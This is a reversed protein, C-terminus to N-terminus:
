RRPLAKVNLVMSQMSGRAVDILTGTRRCGDLGAPDYVDCDPGDLWATLIYRGPRIGGIRFRGYEDAYAERYDQLRDGAPEPILTVAAGSWMSGDPGVVQGDIKAGQSELVIQFPQSTAMSTSLGTARVDAGSARVETLYFDEPLNMVFADYTEKPMLLVDFPEDSTPAVDVISGRESRPELVVHPRFGPPLRQAGSAVVEGQWARAPLVVVELEEVNANSLLLTQRGQLRRNELTSEVWLQYWGPAVNAIHFRNEADFQVEAFAPLTGTNGSDLRELFVSATRIAVGSEGDTIRGGIRVREVPRMYVDIGNLEEGSSLRLPLAESLRQTGPYFTTTYSPVRVERGSDDVRPQDEVGPGTIDGELAVAVYYAGPALGHIRYEGHDNTRASGANKFSHRGRAHYQQYLDVRVNVAPDGDEFRVRGALVSWPNLRFALNTLRQGRSLYFRPPMRLSGRRFTSSALYGDRQATLTYNGVPIDRIEFRGRDDTEVGLAPKGTELPRLIVRARRLGVGNVDAVVQGEIRGTAAEPKVAAAGRTQALALQAVVQFAILVRM